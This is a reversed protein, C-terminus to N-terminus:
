VEVGKVERPAALSPLHPLYAELSYSVYACTCTEGSRPTGYGTARQRTISRSTESVVTHICM